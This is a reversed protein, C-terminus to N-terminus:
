ACQGRPFIARPPEWKGKIIPFKDNRQPFYPAKLLVPLTRILPMLIWFSFTDPPRIHMYDYAYKSSMVSLSCFKSMPFHLILTIQDVFLLTVFWDTRCSLLMQQSVTLLGPYSLIWINCLRCSLWTSNLNLAERTTWHNLIRGDICSGHTHDRTRSSGVHRLAVLGTPWLYQAQARLSQSGFSSVGRVVAASAWM